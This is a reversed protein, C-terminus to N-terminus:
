PRPGAAMDNLQHGLAHAVAASSHEERLVNGRAVAESRFHSWEAALAELACVLAEVDGRPVVLRRLDGTLYAGAEGVDTAVAPVGMCLSELLATQANDTTSSSIFCHSDRLADLTEARSCAGHFRVWSPASAELGLRLPGDGYVDFRVCRKEGLVKVAQLAALPDKLDVLRGAFVIRFPDDRQPPDVHGPTLGDPIPLPLVPARMGFDHHLHEASSRSIAIPPANRLQWRGLSKSQALSALRTVIGAGTPFIANGHVITRMPRHARKGAFVAWNSFPYFSNQILVADAAEALETLQSAFRRSPIALPINAPQWALCPWLLDGDGRCGATTVEWGEAPMTRKMWDVFFEVGGLHPPLFTSTM